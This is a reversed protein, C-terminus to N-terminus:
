EPIYAPQHMMEEIRASMHKEPTGPPFIQRSVTGLRYSGTLSTRSRRWNTTPGNTAKASGDGSAANGNGIDGAV